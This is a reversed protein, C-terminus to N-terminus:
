QFILSIDAAAASHTLAGVSIIDVGAKAVSRVNNLGINGSAEIIIRADTNRILHVAKRLKDLPMNDLMIVDAGAAVAEKVETLTKVEIEVKLLHHAGARARHIATGVGGVASIHNDKILIGDFLGCRHNRGGGARVAYRDCLRLGPATKRTDSIEAALGHTKEVYRRTLTAIGSMRQLFNLATREAKLLSRTSGSIGALAHGTKVRSADKVRATFRVREDVLQFVRAAFPMGALIFDGKAKLVARSTSRESILASTTVDDSGVDENLANLLINDVDPTISKTM